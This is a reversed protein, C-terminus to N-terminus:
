CLYRIGGWLIMIGLLRHLWISPIKQAWLGAALGGAAGGLLYPITEKWSINGGTASVLITVISAPLIVALSSGFVERSKEPALLTLLPILILGGGAGFLGNVCGAALGALILGIKVRM